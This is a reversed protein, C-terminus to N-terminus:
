IFVRPINAVNWIRHYMHHSNRSPRKMPPQPPGDSGHQEIDDLVKRDNEQEDVKGVDLDENTFENKEEKDWKRKKKALSKKAREILDDARSKSEDQTLLETM